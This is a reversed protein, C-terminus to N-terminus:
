MSPISCRAWARRAPSVASHRSRPQTAPTSGRCYPRAAADIPHQIAGAGSSSTAAPALTNQGPLAGVPTKGSRALYLGIGIAGLIALAGALSAWWPTSAPKKM